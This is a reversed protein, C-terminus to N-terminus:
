GSLIKMASSSAPKMIAALLSMCPAVADGSTATFDNSNRFEGMGAIKSPTLAKVECLSQSPHQVEL